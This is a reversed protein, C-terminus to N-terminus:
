DEELVAMKDKDTARERGSVKRSDSSQLTILHTVSLLTLASAESQSMSKPSRDVVNPLERSCFCSTTTDVWSCKIWLGPLLTNGANQSAVLINTFRWSPIILIRGSSHLPCSGELEQGTNSLMRTPWALSVFARVEAGPLCHWCQHQSWGTPTQQPVSPHPPVCVERITHAHPFM